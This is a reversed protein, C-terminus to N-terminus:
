WRGDYLCLAWGAYPECFVDKPVEASVDTIKNGFEGVGGHPFYIAWDYPGGEWLIAYECETWDWKKVLKPGYEDTAKVGYVKRVLALVKDADAKKVKVAM